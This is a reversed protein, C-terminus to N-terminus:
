FMLQLMVGLSKLHRKPGVGSRLLLTSIGIRGSCVIVERNVGVFHTKEDKM